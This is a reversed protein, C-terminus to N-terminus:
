LTGHTQRSFSARGIKSINPEEESRCFFGAVQLTGKKKGLMGKGEEQGRGWEEQGGERGGVM